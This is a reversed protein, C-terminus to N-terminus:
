EADGDSQGEARAQASPDGALSAATASPGTARPLALLLGHPPHLYPISPHLHSPPISALSTITLSLPRLHSLVCSGVEDDM